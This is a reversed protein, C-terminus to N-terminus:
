SKVETYFASPGRVGEGTGLGTPLSAGPAPWRSGSTAPIPFRPLPLEKRTLRALAQSELLLLLGERTGEGGTGRIGVGGRKDSQRPKM